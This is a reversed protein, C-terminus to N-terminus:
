YQPVTKFGLVVVLGVLKRPVDMDEQVACRSLLSLVLPMSDEGVGLTHQHVQLSAGPPPSECCNM